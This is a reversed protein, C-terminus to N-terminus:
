GVTVNGSTTGTFAGGDTTSVTVNSIDDATINGGLEDGKINLTLRGGNSGDSGWRGTGASVLQESSANLTNGGNLNIVSSTNTIFDLSASPDYVHYM